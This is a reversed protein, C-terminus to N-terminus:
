NWFQSNQIAKALFQIAKTLVRESFNYYPSHIPYFKNDERGGFFVYCGKIHKLYLSFDEAGMLPRLSFVKEKGYVTNAVNKLYECSSEDNIVMPYCKKYIIKHSVEYVDCVKKVMTKIKEELLKRIKENLTRVTGCIEVTEPIVNFAYGGHIKGCTIVASDLPSIYRPVIETLAQVIKSAILITDQTKEPASAHGGSGSIEIKFEDASAMVPGPTISIEDWKLEPMIHYGIIRDIGELCGEQIMFKAGGEPPSEEAPQFIFRIKGTFQDKIKTILLALGLLIAMHGDHGCAHMYGEHESSFDLGTKEKVPLADMDARIAINLGERETDIDAILGTETLRKPELGIEKLIEIIYDRTKEEKYAPEPIAHLARRYGIVIPEIQKIIKDM